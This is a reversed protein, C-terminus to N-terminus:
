RVAVGRAMIHMTQRSGRCCSNGNRKSLQAASKLQLEIAHHILNGCL